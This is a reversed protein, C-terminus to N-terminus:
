WTMRLGVSLAHSSDASSIDGDYRLYLSTAKAIATDAALSVIASDRTPVAGFVTFGAMPAGAFSATVPNSVDVYEHAWGLRMQLRLKESWGADIAGGLELGAITRLSTTTQAAMNLDISGAGSESFAAQTGSSTQLRVFPTLSAEAPPYVGLRYGAEAQGFFQDAHVRGTATRPAFGAFAITRRMQNDLYGYGALGDLYLGGEAFSAYLAAQFDNTTGRGDLGSLYQTSNIYGVGLGVVFRPDVRYDAGAAFGGMTYSASHTNSVDGTVSGIGGLASAWVTWPSPAAGDCCVSCADDSFAALALRNSGGAIGGRAFAMQRGVENMFLRSAQIGAIAFGSYVEGGLQDLAQPAQATSLGSLTNLVTALDGSATQSAQDLANGVAKQNPTVGGNNFGSSLLTLFVDNADYTLVPTLFAFNSTVGAYTGIRGGTANLITYTTSRGYTGPAASVVVTGGIITAIGPVGTVNIRDSQGAANVEVQYVSGAAQIYTGSITLTGISNGPSIIGNNAVVGFITGSGGINGTAGVAVTSTISGNVALRGASVTTNGTYTNTGTLTLTGSGQKVLNGTGTIVSALITNSASDVTLSGGGLTITGGTGSLAGVTQSNGNLDFTGGTVTLAGTTLLSNSAGLQLTGANVTTGGSYTNAGSLTLTGSGTKVLSGGTGSVVGSVTSSLDNAGTTLQKSDLFFSGAGEISGVTVNSLTSGNVEFIGGANAIIRATGGTAASDFQVATGNNSTLTSSGASSTGGFILAAGAGNVVVNANGASSSGSFSLGNEGNVILTPANASNNVIGAGTIALGQIGSTTLTYAPAGANFTLGGIFTVGSSFTLSTTSSAGFSATGGPATGGSWNTGTNFDSSGPAALWTADQARTV